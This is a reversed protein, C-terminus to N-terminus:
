GIPIIRVPVRATAEREVRYGSASEQQIRLIREQTRQIESLLNNGVMTNTVRM